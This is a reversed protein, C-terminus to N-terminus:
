MQCRDSGRCGSVISKEPLDGKKLMLLLLINDSPFRMIYKCVM